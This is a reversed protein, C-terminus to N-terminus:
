YLKGFPGFSYVKRGQKQCLFLLDTLFEDRTGEEMKLLEDVFVLQMLKTNAFWYKDGQVEEGSKLKKSLVKYMNEEFPTSAGKRTALKEIDTEVLDTDYLNAFRQSFSTSKNYNAIEHEVFEDKTTPYNGNKRTYPNFIKQNGEPKAYYDALKEVLNLPAKGLKASSAGLETGEIKLNTLSSTGNGKIQFKAIDKNDSNKVFIVTDQTVFQMKDKMQLRYIIKGLKYKYGNYMRDMDSLFKYDANILVYKAKGSILKLSVGVLEGERLMRRMVVNLKEIPSGKSGIAAEIQKEVNKQDRVLWIDAPNWTDKANKPIGYRENILDVIYEMFGNKKDRDFHTFNSNAYETILVSQQQWFTDMWKREPATKPLLKYLKPNLNLLTKGNYLFIKQLGKRTTSDKLIAEEDKFKQNKKFARKLVFATATEQLRTFEGDTIKVGNIEAM